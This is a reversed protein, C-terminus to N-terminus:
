NEEKESEKKKKKKKKEKETEKSSEEFVEEDVIEKNILEEESPIKSQEPEEKQTNVVQTTQESQQPVNEGEVASPSSTIKQTQKKIKKKARISKGHTRLKVTKEEFVDEEEYDTENPNEPISILKSKIIQCERLPYINKIYKAINEAFKGYVMGRIFKGHKSTKAIENMIEYMIKRITKQQSGKVRRKTVCFISVRYIFDDATKFNFIGDIRTSGRHILSRIFDRTFEHGIFRTYCAGGNVSIIKFRLKIYSHKFDKTLDYLLTEVVRGNINDIESSIIESIPQEKFLKPAYVQYWTKSKWTDVAKARRAIRSKRGRSSM